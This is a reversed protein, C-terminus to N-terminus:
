TAAVSRVAELFEDMEFPKQLVPRGTEALLPRVTPEDAWATVFLVREASEPNVKVIERFFDVGDMVPMMIDCVIVRYPYRGIALLAALGHQATQAHYGAQQLVRALGARVVENDDIVLVPVADADEAAPAPQERPEPQPPEPDHRLVSSDSSGLTASM